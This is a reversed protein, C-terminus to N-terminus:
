GRVSDECVFTACSAACLLRVHLRVCFDCVFIAYIGACLDTCLSACMIDCMFECVFERRFKDTVFEGCKFEALCSLDDEDTAYPSRASVLRNKVCQLYIYICVSGGKGWLDTM